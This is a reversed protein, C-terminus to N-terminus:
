GKWVSLAMDIFKCMTASKGIEVIMETCIFSWANM